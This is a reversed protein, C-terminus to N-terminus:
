HVNNTKTKPVVLPSINPEGIRLQLTTRLLLAGYPPGASRLPLFLPAPQFCQRSGVTQFWPCILPRWPQPQLVAFFLRLSVLALTIHKRNAPACCVKGSACM